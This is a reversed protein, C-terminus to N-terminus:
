YESCGTVRSDAARILAVAWPGRPRIVCEFPEPHAIVGSQVKGGQKVPYGNKDLPASVNLTHLVSAVTLFFSAEAFHRGPCVRRGYGFVFQAPDLVDPNLKGDKLFREPRFEHPDQYWREDRAYAWINPIVLAGKPIFYGRYEDDELLRHPFGLPGVVHWRMCEKIVARVYQLADQDEFNPLRHPGVVADLEAQAKKQVEPFRLLALFFAQTAALTTDAGAGYAVAATNKAVEEDKRDIAGDKRSIQAMLVTTISTKATGNRMAELTRQWPVERVDRVIQRVEEADHKFRAGPAWKPLYRLTPFLEVLYKGPVLLRSFAELGREAVVVLEDDSSNVDVGYAIPLITSAFLLRNHDLLNEPSELLRSLYRSVQAYQRPRFQKVANPNFFQHFARRHRRWWQGYRFTPLVYDFGGFDIVASELRDSYLASRKELLDMAAEHSGLVLIPQGFVSLYVIDGYKDCLARYQVEMNETPVDLVNGIVPLPHPGPPLQQRSPRRSFYRWTVLLVVIAGMVRVPWHTSEFM